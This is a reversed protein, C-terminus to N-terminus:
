HCPEILKCCQQFKSCLAVIDENIQCMNTCRGQYHHCKEDLLGAGVSNAQTLFFFVAFLFPLTRM